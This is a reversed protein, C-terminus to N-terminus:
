TGERVLKVFEEADTFEQYVSAFRLFAVQDLERLEELVLDGVRSSSIEGQEAIAFVSAEIRALSADMDVASVPRKRCALMLGSRVKERSFPQRGGGKKVVVPMRREIREVTSFRKDCASCVRRRRIGDPVVRSDVVRTNEHSCFPCIM